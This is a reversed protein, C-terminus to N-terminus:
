MRIVSLYVRTGDDNPSELWAYTPTDSESEQPGSVAVEPLNPVSSGRGSSGRLGRAGPPIGGSVRGRWRVEKSLRAQKGNHATDTAISVAGIGRTGRGAARHSFRPTGPHNDGRGRPLVAGRMGPANRRKAGERAGRRATEFASM